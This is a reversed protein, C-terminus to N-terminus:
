SNRYYAEMGKMKDVCSVCTVDEVRSSRKAHADGNGCLPGGKFQGNSKLRTRMQDQNEYYHCVGKNKGSLDIYDYKGNM